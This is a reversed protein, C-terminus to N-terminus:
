LSFYATLKSPTLASDSKRRSCRSSLSPSSPSAAQGARRDSASFSGHCRIPTYATSDRRTLIYTPSYRTNSTSDPGSSKSCRLGSHSNESSSRLPGHGTFDYAPSRQISPTHGFRHSESPAHISTGFDSAIFLPDGLRISCHVSQSSRGSACVFNTYVRSSRALGSPLVAASASSECHVIEITSTVEEASGFVNPTSAPPVLQIAMAVSIYARLM